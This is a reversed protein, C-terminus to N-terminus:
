CQTRCPDKTLLFYISAAILQLAAFTLILGSWCSLILVFGGLATGLGMGFTVFITSMSMMIGRSDPTQELILSTNAPFGLGFIFGGVWSLILIISLDNLFAVLILLLSSTVLTSVLQRKRGIRNVFYGGVVLAMAIVIAGILSFLATASLSLGFQTRLFSAYYVAGWACAAQRFM